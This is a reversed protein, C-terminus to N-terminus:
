RNTNNEMSKVKKEMRVTCTLVSRWQKFKSSFLKLSRKLIIYVDLDHRNSNNTVDFFM